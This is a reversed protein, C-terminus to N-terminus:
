ISAANSKVEPTCDEGGIEEFRFQTTYSAATLEYPPIIDSADMGKELESVTIGVGDSSTSLRNVVEKGAIGVAGVGVISAATVAVLGGRGLRSVRRRIKAFIGPKDEITVPIKHRDRRDDLWDNGAWYDVEPPKPGRPPGPPQRETAPPQPRPFQPRETM